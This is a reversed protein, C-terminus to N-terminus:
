PIDKDFLAVEPIYIFMRFTEKGELVSTGLQIFLCLEGDLFNVQLFKVHQANVVLCVSYTNPLLPMEM